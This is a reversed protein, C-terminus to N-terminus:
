KDAHYSEQDATNYIKPHIVTGKEVIAADPVKVLPTYNPHHHKWLPDNKRSNYAVIYTWRPRESTNPASTHLTNCHLFFIDGPGYEAFVLEHRLKAAEVRVMDAGQQDATDDHNIRGIHNSGRLVQLCGNEKDAKDIAIMASVMNPYLCGNKYWYGYDQHWEWAGGVKPEKLMVKSHYHYSEDKLLQEVATVLRENRAFMGYIDDGPHAWLTLKSVNGSTDKRDVANKSLEQDAKCAALLLDMEHQTFFNKKLLYGDQEYQAIESDTLVKAM